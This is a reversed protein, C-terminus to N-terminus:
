NYCIFSKIKTAVFARISEHKNTNNMAKLKVGEFAYEMM